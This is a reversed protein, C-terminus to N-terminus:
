IYKNVSTHTDTLLYYILLNSVLQVFVLRPLGQQYCVVYQRAGGSQGGGFFSLNCM